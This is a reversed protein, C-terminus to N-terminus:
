SVLAHKARYDHVLDALYQTAEARMQTRMTSGDHFYFTVTKM